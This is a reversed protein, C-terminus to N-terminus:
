LDTDLGDSPIGPVMPIGLPAYRVALGFSATNIHWQGSPQEIISGIGHRYTISPEIFLHEYKDLPISYALGLSLEVPIQTVAALGGNFVNRQNPDGNDYQVGPPDAIYERYHIEKRIWVSGSAGAYAALGGIIQMGLGAEIDAYTLTADIQHAFSIIVPIPINNSDHDPGSARVKELQKLSVNLNRVGSRLEGSFSGFLPFRYFLMARGGYATTAPYHTPCCTTIGSLASFDPSHSNIDYATLVGYSIDAPAEMIDKKQAALSLTASIWVACVPVLLKLM